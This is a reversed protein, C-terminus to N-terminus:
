VSREFRHSGDTQLVDVGLQLRIASRWNQNVRSQCLEGSSDSSWLRPVHLSLLNSVRLHDANMRPHINRRRFCRLLVM